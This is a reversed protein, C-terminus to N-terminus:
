KIRKNCLFNLWLNHSEGHFGKKSPFKQFYAWNYNITKYSVDGIWLYTSEGKDKECSQSDLTNIYYVIAPITLNRPGHTLAWRKLSICNYLIHNNLLVRGGDQMRCNSNRALKGGFKCDLQSTMLSTWNLRTTKPAGPGLCNFCSKFIAKFFWLM